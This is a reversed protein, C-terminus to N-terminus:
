IYVHFAWQISGAMPSLKRLHHGWEKQVMLSVKNKLEHVTGNALIIMKM